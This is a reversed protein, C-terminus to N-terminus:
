QKRTKRQRRGRRLQDQKLRWKRFLDQSIDAYKCWHREKNEFLVLFYADQGRGRQRQIAIAPEFGDTLQIAPSQDAVSKQRKVDTQNTQQSNSTRADQSQSTPGVGVTKNQQVAIDPKPRDTLNTVLSDRTAVPPAASPNFRKIFAENDSCIKLRTAPVTARHPKASECNILRYSPGENDTDSTVVQSIFWPGSYQRHTLVNPSHPKIQANHLWVKMGVKLPSEQVRNRKDYERKMADKAQQINEVANTQIQRLNAATRELFDRELSTLTRPPAYAEGPDSGAVPLTMDYGRALFFPSCDSTKSRVARLGLVISGIHQEIDEDKQCHFKIASKLRRIGAEARGNSAPSISSSPKIKCGLLDSLAAMFKNIFSSARDVRVQHCLGHNAIVHEIFKAATELGSVTHTLALEIWGTHAEIMLLIYRYGSPKTPRTLSMYDLHWVEGFGATVKHPHLPPKRSSKDPKIQACRTCNRPLHYCISNLNEFYIKSKLTALLNETSAHNLLHHYQSVISLQYKEPICLRTSIPRINQQRKTRAETVRYLKQDLIHYSDSTYLIKRDINEIGSLEGTLKYKTIHKFEADELYDDLIINIDTELLVQQTSDTNDAAAANQQQPANATECDIETGQENSNQLLPTDTALTIDRSEAANFAKTQHRRTNVARTILIDSNDHEIGDTITVINCAHPPVKIRSIFEEASPNLQSLGTVDNVVPLERASSTTQVLSTANSVNTDWQFDVVSHAITSLRATDEDACLNISPPSESILLIYDDSDNQPNPTFKLKNEPTLEAFMRSITDSLKHRHGPLHRLEMNFHSFLYYWRRLRNSGLRLNSFNQLTACDTLVVIEKGILVSYHTQLCQVLSFMEIEYPNWRRQTETIVQGGYYCPYLKNDDGKQAITWSTGATSADVLIYITKTNDLPRMIPPSILEKNLSRFVDECEQTWVFPVGPKTLERLPATRQAFGALCKRYWGCMGLYRTVSKADKPTAFNEIVEKTYKPIMTVGNKDIKHSLFIAHDALFICKKSNLSLNNDRLAGFLLRLQRLMSSTDKAPTVLDDVYCYATGPPLSSLAIIGAIAAHGPSSSLGQPCTTWQYKRGNPATFITLPRSQKDLTLQHFYQLIDCSSYVTSNTAAIENILDNIPPLNVIVPAILKNIHRMDQVIRKTKDRKSVLFIPSNYKHVDAGIAEEIINAKLMNGIQRQVEAAEAPPLKYQRRYAGKDSTLTLGFEHGKFRKMETINTKFLDRFEYLLEAMKYRDDLTANESISIQSEIIFADLMARTVPQPQTPNAPTAAAEAPLQCSLRNVATPLQDAELVDTIIGVCEGKRLVVTDSQCNLIRCVTHPSTPHILIRATAFKDFQKTMPAEILLDKNCYCRNIIVPVLAEAGPPLCVSTSLRLIRQKNERNALPIQMLDDLTVTGYQYDLKVRYNSM